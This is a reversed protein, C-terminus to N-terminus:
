SYVISCRLFKPWCNLQELNKNNEYILSLNAADCRIEKGNHEEEFSNFVEKEWKLM